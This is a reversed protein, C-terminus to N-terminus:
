QSITPCMEHELWLTHHYPDGRALSAELNMHSSLEIRLEVAPSLQPGPFLIGGTESMVLLNVAGAHIQRLCEMLWGVDRRVVPM